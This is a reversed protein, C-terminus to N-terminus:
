GASHAPRAAPPRHEAGALAVILVRRGRRVVVALGVTVRTRRM